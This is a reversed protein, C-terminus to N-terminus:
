LLDGLLLDVPLDSGSDAAESVALQTAQYRGLEFAGASALLLALAAFAAPLAPRLWLALLGGIWSPEDHVVAGARRPAPQLAQARAVIRDALPAPLAEPAAALGQRLALVEDLLAAEGALRAELRAAEAEDLRGDLYAALGLAEEEPLRAPRDGTLRDGATKHDTTKNNTM